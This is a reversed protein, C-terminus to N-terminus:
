ERLLIWKQQYATAFFEIVDAELEAVQPFRSHLSAVIDSIRREGDVLLLIAAASDNLRAMGEPYLIVHCQQAEEWQLRFGRRFCPTQEVGIQM